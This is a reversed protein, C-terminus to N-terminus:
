LADKAFFASAKKIVELYRLVRTNEARLRSLEMEEATVAKTDAEGVQSLEASHTRGSGTGACRRRDRPGSMGAEPSISALAANEHKRIRM